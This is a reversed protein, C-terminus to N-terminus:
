FEGAELGYYTTGGDITVFTLLYTKSVTDLAPEDDDSWAITAPWTIARVPDDQHIILTFPAAIGAAPPDSITIEIAAAITDLDIEHVNGAALNINVVGESETGAVVTELYGEIQPSIAKYGDFDLNGELTGGTVGGKITMISTGWSGTSKYYLDGNETDIYYDGNVGTGVGPAGSGSHWVAGDAGAPGTAWTLTDFSTAGDGIKFKQEDTDLAIEGEMLVVPDAAAWEATTGRRIQIKVAM